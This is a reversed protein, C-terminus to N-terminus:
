SSVSVTVKCYVDAIHSIKRGHRSSTYQGCVDEVMQCNLKILSHAQQCLVPPEYKPYELLLDLETLQIHLM